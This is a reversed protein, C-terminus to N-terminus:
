RVNEGNAFSPILLVKEFNPLFFCRRRLTLFERKELAMDALKKAAPRRGEGPMAM